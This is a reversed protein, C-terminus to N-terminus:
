ALMSGDIDDQEIELEVGFPDYIFNSDSPAIFPLAAM